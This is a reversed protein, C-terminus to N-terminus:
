PTPGRIGPDSGSKGPDEWSGSMVMEHAISVFGEGTFRIGLVRSSVCTRCSRGVTDPAWFDTVQNTIKTM